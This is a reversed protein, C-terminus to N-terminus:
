ERGSSNMPGSHRFQAPLRGLDKSIASGTISLMSRDAFNVATVLFLLGLILYRTHDTHTRSGEPSRSSVKEPCALGNPANGPM